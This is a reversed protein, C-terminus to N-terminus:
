IREELEGIKGLLPDYIFVLAARLSHVFNNDQHWRDTGSLSPM